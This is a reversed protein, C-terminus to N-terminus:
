IKEEIEKLSKKEKTRWETRGNANRGMVVAAALSPSTFAYDKTFVNDKSIIGKNVLEVRLKLLSPSISPATSDSITSGNFVVFGRATLTGSAVAGRAANIYFMDNRTLNNNIDNFVKYGLANVLLRTNDIFDQLMALDYEDISARTPITNNVVSFGNISSSKKALEYFENELYKVHAKNLSNDNSIVIVCETWYNDESLHQKLRKFIKEAEGIYITDDNDDNKGFLFYIGTHEADSRSGLSGLENRSVKYVRGKWGSLESMILGNSNGDFILMKIVKDSM